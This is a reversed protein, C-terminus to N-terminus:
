KTTFRHIGDFDKIKEHQYQACRQMYLAYLRHPSRQQLKEFLLYAEHFRAAKYLRRAHMYRKMEEHAKESFAGRGLVEYLTVAEEKGKVRVIDVERIQYSEHLRAKTRQSILIKAGYTKCLGEIRSGLNITDGIVTYDSRGESGMEGVIAKGTHLGIGIDIPPFGSKQLKHNLSELAEIQELAATVAQDAHDPVPLPANWYAMIADGIYKDITGRHAIIIKSMPSMYTNLYDVLIKPDEFSESITTFNRIDSFFITIEAETTSFITDANKLLQAAVQPSVKRAFKRRILEKQRNEFYVKLFTFAIISLLTALAPAAMNLRLHHTFLMHYYFTGEAMLWSLVLGFASLPPALLLANGIFLVSLLVALPTVLLDYSTTSAIMDDNILNDILNAHVEVGPYVSEFPTARLDLLGTASTGVLVIKGRVADPDVTNTYIDVAPIYRYSGHPGRYNIFLKGAADTPIQLDGLNIQTVGNEDYLIDVRQVGLLLRVMEFSLAPYIGGEYSTLLPVYRIIGDPDPVTNFSGSSYVRKQLIPINTIIGKAVPLFDGEPRDHEIYLANGPPPPNDIPTIFDFTFGAVTPTRALTRALIQDYDPLEGELTRSLNAERAIAAPSSRDREAFVMDLGIIAAGADTLNDILRAVINRSWPWQGLAKLSKEDIDVIVIRDDAPVPGRYLFLTDTLKDDVMQLFTAHQLYLAVM